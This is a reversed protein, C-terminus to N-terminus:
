GSGHALRRAVEKRVEDLNWEPHRAGLFATLRKRALAWAEHALRLREMGSKGRLIRAVDHDVVEIRRPDISRSTV